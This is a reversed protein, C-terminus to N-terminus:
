IQPGLKVFALSPTRAILRGAVFHFRHGLQEEIIEGRGDNMGGGKRLIRDM